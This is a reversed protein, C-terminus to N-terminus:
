RKILNEMWDAVIYEGHIYFYRNVLALDDFVDTKINLQYDPYNLVKNKFALSHTDGVILISKTENVEYKHMVNM